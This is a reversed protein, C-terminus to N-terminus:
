WALARGAAVALAVAALAVVLIRLSREAARIRNLNTGNRAAAADAVSLDFRQARLYLITEAVSAKMKADFEGTEGGPTM